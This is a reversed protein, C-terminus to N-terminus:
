GAAEGNRSRRRRRNVYVVIVLAFMTAVAAAIEPLPGILTSPTRGTRLEVQAVLYGREGEDLRERVSGDAAIVGSIGTTSAVVVTRGTQLARMREIDWQQAPQGTGQYTANNTQVTILEAGGDIVATFVDDYAVEFCIADGIVVGGIELVGADDGGVFDRPVRDFRGIVATLQERFPVFEGFPVPYNKVYRDGAGSVPDWVIGSNEVKTPDETQVVAGVLIPAGVARATASIDAAVSEDRYPDIDSSNEPWLVFDPQPVDGTDIAEALRLTQDIHNQLVARRVDLAEMGTGPTGGQIAAVTASGTDGGFELPRPIVLSAVGVVAIISVSWIWRRTRVSEIVLGAIAVIAFTIGVMGAVSGLAALPSNGQSFALEGWPFGGLPVQGRLAEMVVWASAVWWPGGRIRSVPGIIAGLAGNWLACYASLLLWADTGIVTMWPLLVLFFTVGFVFGLLMSLRASARWQVALVGLVGVFAMPWWGFPAFAIAALVGALAAIAISATSRALGEGPM